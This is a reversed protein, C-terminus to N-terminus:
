LFMLNSAAVEINNTKISELIIAGEQKKREVNYNALGSLMATILAALGTMIATFVPSSIWLHAKKNEELEERKLKLEETKLQLDQAMRQKELEVKELEINTPTEATAYIVGVVIFFFIIYSLRQLFM